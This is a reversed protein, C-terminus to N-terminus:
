PIYPHTGEVSRKISSNLAALKMKNAIARATRDALIFAAKEELKRKHKNYCLSWSKIDILKAIVDEEYRTWRKGFTCHYGQETVKTVSGDLWCGRNKSSISMLTNRGPAEAFYKRIKTGVGYQVTDKTKPPADRRDNNRCRTRKQKEREMPPTDAKDRPTSTKTNAGAANEIRRRRYLALDPSM